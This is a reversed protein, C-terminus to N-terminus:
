KRVRYRALIEGKGLKSIELLELDTDLKEKGYGFVGEVFIKPAITVWIEDVLKEKLFSGYILGGGVLAAEHFGKRSLLEVLEAPKGSFFEVNKQKRLVNPNSTLVYTLRKDFAHEPMVKYLNSGMIMIGMQKTKSRFHEKDEFSGWDLSDGQKKAIIGDLSQLLFMSIKTQLSM